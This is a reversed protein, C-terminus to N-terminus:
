PAPPYLAFTDGELYLNMEMQRLGIRGQREAFSAPARFQVVQNEGIVTAYGPGVVLATGEDVGYAVPLKTDALASILRNYRSRAVFHQDIVAHSVLGLGEGYVGNRYTLRAYTAEYFAEHNQDGTIMVRSMLAAGASTGAITAGSEWATRIANKVSNPVREMFRNQDGGSLFVLSAGAVLAANSDAPAGNDYHFIPRDSHAVLQRWIYHYASDPESSAETFIVAYCTDCLSSTALYGMMADPRKGGGIIILRGTATPAALGSQM